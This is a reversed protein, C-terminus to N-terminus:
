VGRWVGSSSCRAAASSPMRCNSPDPPAEERGREYRTSASLACSACSSSSNCSSTSRLRRSSLPRSFPSRFFLSRSRRQHKGQATDGDRKSEENQEVRQQRREHYDCPARQFQQMRPFPAQGIQEERQPNKRQRCRDENCEGKDNRRKLQQFGTRDTGILANTRHRERQANASEKQNRAAAEAHDSGLGPSRAHHSEPQVAGM